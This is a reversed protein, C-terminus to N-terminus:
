INAVLMASQTKLCATVQHGANSWMVFTALLIKDLLLGARGVFPLGTDDEKQGPGEGIIMLKAQANGRYFVVKNRTQCLACDTCAAAATAVDELSAFGPKPLALISGAAASQASGAKSADAM